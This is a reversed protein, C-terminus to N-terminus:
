DGQLSRGQLDSLWDANVKIDSDALTKRLASFKLKQEVSIYINQILFMLIKIELHLQLQLQLQLQGTSLFRGCDFAGNKFGHEM